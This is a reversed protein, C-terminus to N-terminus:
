FSSVTARVMGIQLRFRIKAGEQETAIIPEPFPTPGIENNGGRVTLVYNSAPVTTATGGSSSM